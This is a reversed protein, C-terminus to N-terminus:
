IDASVTLTILSVDILLIHSTSVYLIYSCRHEYYLKVPNPDSYILFLSIGYHWINMYILVLQMQVDWYSIYIYM